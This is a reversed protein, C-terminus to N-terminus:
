GSQVRAGVVCSCDGAIRRAETLALDGDRGGGSFRNATTRYLLTSNRWAGVQVLRHLTEIADARVKWNGLDCLATIVAAPVFGFELGGADPWRGADLGPKPAM